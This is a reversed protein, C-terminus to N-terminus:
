MHFCVTIRPVASIAVAIIHAYCNICPQWVVGLAVSAFILMLLTLMGSGVRLMLSM